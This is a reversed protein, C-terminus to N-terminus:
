FLAALRVKIELPIRAGIWTITQVKLIYCCFLGLWIDFIRHIAFLFVISIRIKNNTNKSCSYHCKYTYHFLVFFFLHWFCCFLQLICYSPVSKWPFLLLSPQSMKYNWSNIKTVFMCFQSEILLMLWVFWFLSM